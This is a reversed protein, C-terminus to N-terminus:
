SRTVSIHVGKKLWLPNRLKLTRQAKKNITEADGILIDGLLTDTKFAIYM